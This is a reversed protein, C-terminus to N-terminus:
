LLNRIDIYRFRTHDLDLWPFAAQDFSNLFCDKSRIKTQVRIVISFYDTKHM